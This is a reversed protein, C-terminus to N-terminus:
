RVRRVLATATSTRAHGNHAALKSLVVYRKDSPEVIEDSALVAVPRVFMTVMPRPADASVQAGQQKM